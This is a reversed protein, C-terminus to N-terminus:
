EMRVGQRELAARAPMPARHPLSAFYTMDVDRVAGPAETRDKMRRLHHTQEPLGPGRGLLALGIVLVAAGAVFAFVGVSRAIVPAHGAERPLRATRSRVAHAHRAARLRGAARPLRALLPRAM